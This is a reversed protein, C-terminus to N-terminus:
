KLGEKTSKNLQLGKASISIKDSGVGCIPCKMNQSIDIILAIDKPLNLPIFFLHENECEFRHVKM